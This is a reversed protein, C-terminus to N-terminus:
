LIHAEGAVPSPFELVAYTADVTTDTIVLQGGVIVAVSHPVRGLTHAITWTSAPSAQTHVYAGGTGPPGAPGRISGVPEWTATM